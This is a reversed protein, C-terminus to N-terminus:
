PIRTPNAQLQRVQNADAVGHLLPNVVVPYCRNLLQTLKRRPLHPTDPVADKALPEPMPQPSGVEVVRLEFPLAEAFLM